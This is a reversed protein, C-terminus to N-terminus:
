NKNKCDGKSLLFESGQVAKRAKFIDSVNDACEDCGEGLFSADSYTEKMNIKNKM